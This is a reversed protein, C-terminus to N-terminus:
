LLYSPPISLRNGPVSVVSSTHPLLTVQLHTQILKFHMNCIRQCGSLTNKKFTYNYAWHPSLTTDYSHEILIISPLILPSFSVFLFVCLLFTVFMKSILAVIHIFVRFTFPRFIGILWILSVNDSYILFYVGSQTLQLFGM